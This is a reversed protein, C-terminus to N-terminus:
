CDQLPVLVVSVLEVSFIIRVVEARWILAYKTSKGSKLNVAMNHEQFGLYTKCCSTHFYPLIQEKQCEFCQSVREACFHFLLLCFHSASNFHNNYRLFLSYNWHYMTCHLMGYNESNWWTILWAKLPWGACSIHYNCSPSLSRWIILWTQVEAHSHSFSPTSKRHALGTWM